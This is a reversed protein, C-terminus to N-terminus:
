DGIGMALNGLSLGIGTGIAIGIGIWTGLSASSLQSCKGFNM